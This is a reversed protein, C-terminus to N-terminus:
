QVIQLMHLWLSRGVGNQPGVAQCKSWKAGVLLYLCTCTSALL